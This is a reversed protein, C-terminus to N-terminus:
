VKVRCIGCIGTSSDVVPIGYRRIFTKSRSVQDKQSAVIPDETPIISTIISLVKVGISFGAMIYAPTLSLGTISPCLSFHATFPFFPYIGVGPRWRGLFTLM